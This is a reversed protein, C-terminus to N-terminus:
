APTLMILAIMWIFVVVTAIVPLMYYKSSIM